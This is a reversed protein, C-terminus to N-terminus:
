LLKVKDLAQKIDEIIDETDHGNIYKTLSEVTLVAGLEAPAKVKGRVIPRLYPREISVIRNVVSHTKNRYMYEQQEYLKM